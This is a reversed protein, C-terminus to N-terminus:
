AIELVVSCVPTGGDLSKFTFMHPFLGDKEIIKQRM